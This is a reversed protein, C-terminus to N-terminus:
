WERAERPPERPDPRLTAVDTEQVVVLRGDIGERIQLRGAGNAKSWSGPEYEGRALDWQGVHSWASPGRRFVAVIPADRAPICFLRPATVPM